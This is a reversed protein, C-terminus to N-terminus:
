DALTINTHIELANQIDSDADAMAKATPHLTIVIPSTAAENNIMYLVSDKSLRASQAFSINKALRRIRVEELSRCYDFANNHAQNAPSLSLYIISIIRKLKYCEYFAYSMGSSISFDGDDGDRKKSLALVELNSKLCMSTATGGDMNGVSQDCVVYLNTRANAGLYLRQMGNAVLTTRPLYYIDLMEEYSIDTLGNLEFYGSTSNFTAGASEFLDINARPIGGYVLNSMVYDYGGDAAQSWTQTQSIVGYKAIASYVAKSKILKESDKTPTTDTEINVAKSSPTLAVGDIKVSEIVNEQAGAAIGNLKTKDEASMTGPNSTTALGLNDIKNLLTEIEQGTYNQIQYNPM